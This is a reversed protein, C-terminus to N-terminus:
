GGAQGSISSASLKKQATLSGHAETDRRRGVGASPLCYELCKATSHLKLSQRAAGPDTGPHVIRVIRGYDETWRATWDQLVRQKEREDWQEVPQGIWNEVWM